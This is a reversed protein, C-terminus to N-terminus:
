KIKIKRSKHEPKPESKPLLVTLIGDKFEAEVKDTKLEEPLELSRYFTMNSRERHIWNKGKDEKEEKNEASIEISKPTVEININDKNMGPIEVHMEYKDGHDAIDMPPTRRTSYPTITQTRELPWFLDDFSNRFEDFMRDMETWLDYSPKRETIETNEKPKIALKNKKDRRNKM